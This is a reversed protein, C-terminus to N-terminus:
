ARLALSASELNWLDCGYGSLPLLVSSITKHCVTNDQEIGTVSGLKFTNLHLFKKIEKGLHRIRGQM